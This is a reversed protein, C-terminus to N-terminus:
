NFERIACVYGGSRKDISRYNGSSFDIGSASQDDTNHQSSSMYERTMDFLTVGTGCRLVATNLPTVSSECAKWIEYLEAVSPLYWGNAFESGSLIRSGTQSAYNKAFYFAPYSSSNNTDNYLYSNESSSYTPLYARIQSLNDSGNKDGSFTQSMGYGNPTCEISQIRGFYGARIANSDFGELYVSFNIQGRWELTSQSQVLGVGLTRVTSNNAVGNEDSNLGTGKYFIVAIAASKQANTMCDADAFAIAKGDNLVIDGVADPSAKVIIETWQATLTINATGMTFSTAGNSTYTTTGDSWGVFRYGPRIGIGSFKVTVTEDTQYSATDSPVAIELDDVGDLYTVSYTVVQPQTPSPTGSETPSENGTPTGSGSTEAPTNEAPVDNDPSPCSILCFSFVILALIAAIKSFSKM